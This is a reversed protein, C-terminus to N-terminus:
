CVHGQLIPLDQVFNLLNAMHVAPLKASPLMEAMHMVQLHSSLLLASWILQSMSEHSLLAKKPLVPWIAPSM